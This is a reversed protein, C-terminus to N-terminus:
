LMAASSAGRSGALNVNPWFRATFPRRQSTATPAPTPGRCSRDARHYQELTPLLPAKLQTGVLPLAAYMSEVIVDRESRVMKASHNGTKLDSPLPLVLTPTPHGATQMSRALPTAESPTQQGTRSTLMAAELIGPRNGSAKKGEGKRTTTRQTTTKTATARRRSTESKQKNNTQSASTKSSRKRKGAGQPTRKKQTPPRGQEKTSIQGGANEVRGTPRPSAAPLLGADFLAQRWRQIQVTQAKRQEALEASIDRTHRQILGLTLKWLGGGERLWM